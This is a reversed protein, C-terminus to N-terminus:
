AGVAGKTEAAEDGDGHVEQGPPCRAPRSHTSSEMPHRSTKKAVSPEPPPADASGRNRRGGKAKLDLPWHNTAHKPSEGLSRSVCSLLAHWACSRSPNRSRM